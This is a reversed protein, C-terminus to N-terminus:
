LCSHESTCPCTGSLMTVSSHVVRAVLATNTINKKDKDMIGTVQNDTTDTMDKCTIDM